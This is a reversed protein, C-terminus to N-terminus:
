RLASSTKEMLSTVRKETETMVIGALLIVILLPMVIRVITKSEM